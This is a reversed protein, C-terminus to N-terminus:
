ISGEDPLIPRGQIDLCQFLVEVAKATEEQTSLQTIKEMLDNLQWFLWGSVLTMTILLIVHINPTSPNFSIILLTICLILLVAASFNSDPFLFFKYWILGPLSLLSIYNLFYRISKAFSEENKECILVFKENEAM